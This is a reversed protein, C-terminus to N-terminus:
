FHGLIKFFHFCLGLTHVCDSNLSGNIHVNKQPHFYLAHYVKFQRCSSVRM